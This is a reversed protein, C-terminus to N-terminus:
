AKAAKDLAALGAKARGLYYGKTTEPVDRWRLTTTFAKFLAKALVEVRPDPQDQAAKEAAQLADTATQRYPGRQEPTLREWGPISGYIVVAAAEVRPDPQDPGAKDAAQLAAAAMKRYTERHVLPSQGWPNTPHRVDWLAAATAEIRPDQQTMPNRQETTEDIAAVAAAADRLVAERVQPSATRWGDLSLYRRAYIARAAAHIRPEWNM